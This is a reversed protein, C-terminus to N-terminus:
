GDSGPPDARQLLRLCHAFTRMGKERWQAAGDRSDDGAGPGPAASRDSGEPDPLARLCRRAAPSMPGHMRDPGHMRPLLGDGDGDADDRDRDRGYGHGHMLGPGGMHGYGDGSPSDDDLVLAIAPLGGVVLLAAAVALGVLARV